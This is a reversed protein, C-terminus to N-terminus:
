GVCARVSTEVHALAKALAQESSGATAVRLAAAAATLTRTHNVRSKAIGSKSGHLTQATSVIQTSLALVRNNALSAWRRLIRTAAAPRARPAMQALAQVEEILEHLEQHTARAGILAAVQAQLWEALATTNVQELGFYRLYLVATEIVMSPDPELVTLGGGSGRQVAAMGFFELTRAAERFTSRGV